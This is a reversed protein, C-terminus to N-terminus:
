GLSIFLGALTASMLNSLTGAAVAKPGLRAIDSRREPALGGLGGLLIAISSLNAFGCLAFTAIIQAEKSLGERMNLFDVYAVFENLVLKQGILSGIDRADEWPVGLVFALPSLMYGFLQQLTVGEFGFLACIGGIMGNLLAILAIFAVLMAGINMALQMGTLAGNAAAHIVNAPAEGEDFEAHSMDDRPTDVEPKIIKAMLLGGPAAMFSAAILYKLEVGMSAYGAMVAGAISALGGSMVAFLESDTMQKIYPKVVLPAETQGVFINATASLSEAKSTGLATRILGGIFGVIKQMLGLFYLVSMLASLFVIIPLVKVAFIFGLSDGALEGFMFTVGVDAYDIVHQVGNAAGALIDKGVPVYLVLAALSAQIAFAGIVTRWNIAGRNESLLFALSLLAFIGILGIV